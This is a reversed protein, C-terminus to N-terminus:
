HQRRVLVDREDEWEQVPVSREQSGHSGQDEEQEGAGLVKHMGVRQGISDEVKEDSGDDGKDGLRSIDHKGFEARFMRPHDIMGLLREAWIATADNRRASLGCARRAVVRLRDLPRSM